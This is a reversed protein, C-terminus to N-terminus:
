RSGTRIGTRVGAQGSAAAGPAALRYLAIGAQQAVIQLAPEAAILARRRDTWPGPHVVVHTVGLRRLEDLAATGPFGRLLQASRDFGPPAFGSYGNVLPHRHRTAYIMYRANGFFGQRDYFPMEAVVARPEDRLRTYIGPIGPFPRYWLPARVAELNVAAVLLIAGAVARPQLRPQPTDRRRAARALLAATGYGALVAVAVLAMQGARSYCRIAGLAPVHAHLWAFGPVHPLASLAVSGAGAALWMRARPDRLGGAALGFLALATVAVGPFNADSSGSFRHSWWAFHLRSGTYLYDTWGAACASTEALSRSLGLTRSLEAYPRIVPWLLAACAVVAVLIWAAAAPLRRRWEPMRALWACGAAWATFVLLYISTTAQLAVAAGLAAAWRTAGTRLLRDLAVFVLPLLQLHLAQIHPLRMLHHASFAVASGAVLGAPWSGTDRQVMVSFAWGSLAFGALLVLNFTLVPPLGLWVLPMAMVGQLILPESYALTLRHPHFINGDFLHAPDAPLTRAVWDVAWVNLSYDGNDVRSNAAPDRALPWTHAVALLVFLVLAGFAKM